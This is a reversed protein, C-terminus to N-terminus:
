KKSKKKINGINSTTKELYALPGALPIQNPAPGFNGMQMGAPVPGRVVNMPGGQQMFMQPAGGVKSIHNKISFSMLEIIDCNRSLVIM